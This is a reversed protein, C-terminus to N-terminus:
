SAPRLHRAWAYQSEATQRITLIVILHQGCMASAVAAGFMVNLLLGVDFDGVRAQVVIDRISDCCDMAREIFSQAVGAFRIVTLRATAILFRAVAMPAVNSQASRAKM